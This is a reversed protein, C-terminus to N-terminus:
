GYDVQVEDLDCLLLKISDLNEREESIFIQDSFPKWELDGYVIGLGSRELASRYAERQVRDSQAFCWVNKGSQLAKVTMRAAGEAVQSSEFVDSLIYFDADIDDIVSVDGTLDLIKTCFNHGLNQEKAAKTAIQLALEDIDTAVVEMDMSALTLSPLAPGCGLECIKWKKRTKHHNSHSHHQFYSECSKAAVRASPWVQSALFNYKIANTSETAPDITLAYCWPSFSTQQQRLYVKHLKLNSLLETNSATPPTSLALTSRPKMWVYSVLVLVTTWDCFYYRHSFKKIM